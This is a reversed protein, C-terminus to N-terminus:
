ERKQNPSLATKETNSDDCPAPLPTAERDRDHHDSGDISASQLHIQRLRAKYGHKGNISHKLRALEEQYAEIRQQMETVQTKSADLETILGTVQTESTAHREEHGGPGEILEQLKSLRALYVRPGDIRAELERIKISSSVPSAITDQPEYVSGQSSGQGASLKDKLAKVEKRATALKRSLDDQMDKAEQQSAHLKQQRGELCSRLTSNEQDLEACKEKKAKHLRKYHAVDDQASNYKQELVHLREAVDAAEKAKKDARAEAVSCRSHLRPADSGVDMRRLNNTRL